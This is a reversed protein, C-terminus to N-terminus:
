GTYASIRASLYSWRPAIIYNSYLRSPVFITGSGGRSLSSDDFAASTALSVVSNSLLFLNILNRCSRFAYASIYSCLPFSATALFRCNFFANADIYRCQPFFVSTLSFCSYFALHGIYNCKPFSIQTLGYCSCFASDGIRSCFPFSVTTLNLCYYFAYADIYTCSPFSVSTLQTCNYFAYNDIYSCNPFSVTILSRCSSFAYNGIYECKPFSVTTLSSCSQFACKLICTESGNYTSINTNAYTYPFIIGSGSGDIKQSIMSPLQSLREARPESGSCLVDNCSSLVTSLSGYIYELSSTLGM